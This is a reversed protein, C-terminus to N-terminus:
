IKKRTSTAVAHQYTKNEDRIIVEQTHTNADTFKIIATATLSPGIEAKMTLTNSDANYVGAWETVQGGAGFWWLRYVRANKDYGWMWLSLVKGSEGITRGAVYSDIVADAVETAKGTQETKNWESRKNVLAVDWTGVFQNLVALEPPRADAAPKAPPAAPKDQAAALGTLLLALLAASALPLTRM